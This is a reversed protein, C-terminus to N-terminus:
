GLGEKDRLEQIFATGCTLKQAIKDKPSILRWFPTISKEGNNFDELSAEAVIRCFIGTTLHCVGTAKYEEAFEKKMQPISKQQGAPISEIYDKILIPSPILMKDGEKMNGFSHLLLKVEPMKGCNLKEKWTKKAM